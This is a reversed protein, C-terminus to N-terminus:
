GKETLWINCSVGRPYGHATHVLGNDVQESWCWYSQEPHLQWQAHAVDARRSIEGIDLRLIERAVFQCVYAKAPFTNSSRSTIRWGGDPYLCGREHLVHETMHRALAQLYPAYEGDLRLAERCGAFWPYVLGEIVPLVVADGGDALLAPIRGDATASAAVTSAARRAQQHAREASGPHDLRSFLHQLIVCAAWAKGAIYTNGSAQGISPDLCDYTTIERGGECRSSDGRPVGIRQAADPHDRAELSALCRQLLEAQRQAWALDGSAQVYVGAALVWNCLQEVTMYSFCGSLGAMEYASRGPSSFAGDVGMDHAFSVGGAATLGGPMQVRDEYAYRQAYLDLVNRITWPHHRAEFLAHDGVLDLTNIMNFEGENVVWLPQGEHELLQTSYLYSRTTHAVTFRQAESLASRALHQDAAECAQVAADFQALAYEGVALVSDFWRTYYQRTALGSTVTGPLHFCYAFNFSRREGAPVEAVIIGWPGLMASRNIPHPDNLSGLPDFGIGAWAGPADTLLGQHLGDSIGLVGGRGQLHHLGRTRSSRRLGLVMRRPLAGGRNDVTLLARVAPVIARKLAEDTDPAPIAPDPMPCWPGPVPTYLTYSLDGATWRDSAVNFDRRVQDPTFLSLDALHATVEQNVFRKREAADPADTFPLAEFYNRRTASEVAVLVPQDPPRRLELDLGGKAGPFGLTLSAHAGIPAHHTNFWINSLPM